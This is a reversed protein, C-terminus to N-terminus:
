WPGVIPSKLKGLETQGFAVEHLYLTGHRPCKFLVPIRANNRESTQLVRVEQLCKRCRPATRVRRIVDASM